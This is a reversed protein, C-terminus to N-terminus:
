YWAGGAETTALFPLDAALRAQLLSNFDHFTQFKSQDVYDYLYMTPQSTDDGSLAAAAYCLCQYQGYHFNDGPDNLAWGSWGPDGANLAFPDWIEGEIRNIYHIIQSRQAPTLTPYFWDYVLAADMVYGPADIYSNFRVGHDNGSIDYDLPDTSNTPSFAGANGFDGTSKGTMNETLFDMARTYYNTNKTLMYMLAFQWAQQGYYTTGFQSYPAMYNTFAIWSDAPTVGSLPHGNADLGARQLIAPMRSATLYIRPHPGAVFAVPTGSSSPSFASAGNTNKATVWVYYRTNDTLGTLTAVTGSTVDTGFQTAAASNNTIAYFVAYSTAGAVPTWGVTLQGDGPIVAPAQPAMLANLTVKLRFFAQRTAAGGMPTDWTALVGDDATKVMTAATWSGAGLAPTTMTQCTVQSASLDQKFRYVVGGGTPVAAPLLGPTSPSMPLIGLTYKILNPVGDSLPSNTPGRQSADPITAAWTAFPIPDAITATPFGFGLVLGVFFLRGVVGVYFPSQM